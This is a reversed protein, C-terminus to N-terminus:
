YEYFDPWACLFVWYFFLFLFFFPRAYLLLNFLQNFHILCHIVNFSLTVHM